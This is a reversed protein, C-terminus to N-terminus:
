EGDIEYVLAFELKEDGQLGTIFKAYFMGSSAEWNMDDPVIAGTAKSWYFCIMRPNRAIDDIQPFAGSIKLSTESRIKSTVIGQIPKFDTIKGNQLVVLNTPISERDDDAAAKAYADTPFKASALTEELNKAKRPFSIVKVSKRIDKQLEDNTNYDLQSKELEAIIEEAARSAFTYGVEVELQRFYLRPDHARIPMPLMAWEPTAEESDEMQIVAEVIEASVNGIVPGLYESKLTYTNWCEVFLDLVGTQEKELILDGPGALNLDHYVQAVKVKDMIDPSRNLVMVYPPNYFLGSVWRGYEPKILRIQGAQIEKQDVPPKVATLLMNIKKIIEEWIESTNLEETSCYPCITLHQVLNKRQSPDNAIAPHPCTRCQKAYRLSLKRSHM